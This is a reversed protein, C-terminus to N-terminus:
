RGRFTHAEPVDPFSVLLTGNTDLKLTVPYKVM